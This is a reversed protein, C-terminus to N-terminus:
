PSALVAIQIPLIFIRKAGYDFFPAETAGHGFQLRGEGRLNFVVLYGVPSQLSEAYDLAQSFGQKVTNKGRGRGGFPKVEVPIPSADDSHIGLDARGNSLKLQKPTFWLGERMLFDYLHNEVMEEDISDAGGVDVADSLENPLWEMLRKYKLLVPLLQIGSVLEEGFYEVLPEIFRRRFDEWARGGHGQEPKLAKSAHGPNVAVQKLHHFCVAAFLEATLERSAKASDLLYEQSVQNKLISDLIAAIAKSEQHKSILELISRCRRQYDSGVCGELRQYRIGLQEAIKEPNM